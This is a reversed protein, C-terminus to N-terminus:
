NADRFFESNFYLNYEQKDLNLNSGVKIFRTKYFTINNTSLYFSQNEIVNDMVLENDLYINLKM